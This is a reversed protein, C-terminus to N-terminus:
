KRKEPSIIEDEVPKTKVIKDDYSNTIADPNKNGLFEGIQDM